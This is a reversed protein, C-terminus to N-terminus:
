IPNEIVVVENLVKDFLKLVGSDPSSEFNEPPSVPMEIAVIERVFDGAILGSFQDRLETGIM